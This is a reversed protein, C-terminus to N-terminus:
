IAAIRRMASHPHFTRILTNCDNRVKHSPRRRSDGGVHNQLVRAACYRSKQLLFHSGPFRRLTAFSGLNQVQHTAFSEFPSIFFERISRM